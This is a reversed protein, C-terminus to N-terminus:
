RVRNLILNLTVTSPNNLVSFVISANYRNEDPTATVIVNILNARREYNKITTEIMTKVMFETDMGVNEFLSRRIGGGLRPEFFREGPDTLILNKISEKVADADSLVYLDGTQRGTLGAKVNMNTYFDSYRSKARITEIAM